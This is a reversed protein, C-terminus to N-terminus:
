QSTNVADTLWAGGVAYQDLGGYLQNYFRPHATVFSLFHAADHSFRIKVYAFVFTCILQMSVMCSILM